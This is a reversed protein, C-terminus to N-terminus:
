EDQRRCAAPRQGGWGQGHRRRGRRLRRGHQRGGGGFRRHHQRSRRRYGHDAPRRCRYFQREGLTLKNHGADSFVYTEVGNVHAARVTGSSTMDLEDSGGNGAVRDASSLASRSCLPTPAPAARCLDTGAGGYVALRDFGALATGNVTNGKNGGIVTLSHDDVLAFRANDPDAHQRRREGASLDRHRHRRDPRDHGLQDAGAPRRRGARWRTPRAWPRPPSDSSTAGAGGAVTDAGAGGTFVIRNPASVAAADVRNGAHGAIVASRAPPAPLTRM